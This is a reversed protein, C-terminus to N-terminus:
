HDIFAKPFNLHKLGVDERKTILFQYKPENLDKVYLYIEDNLDHSDQEKILNLLANSKRSRSGGIILMAYSCNPVSPWKKHHDENNENIIADLIFM